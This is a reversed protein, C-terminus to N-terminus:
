RRWTKAKPRRAPKGDTRASLYAFVDAAEYYTGSREFDDDAQQAEALFKAYHEARTTEREIAEIMFAHPSTGEAKAAAEVRAKLEAPLKLSAPQTAM